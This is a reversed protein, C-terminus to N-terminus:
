RNPPSLRNEVLRVWFAAGIPLVTDNFDFQPHHLGPENNSRGSGIWLYCGPRHQLFYSFDEAGMTPALNRHVNECGVVDAAAQAAAEAEKGTNITAPYGRHYELHTQVGFAHGIGEMITKMQAEIQDRVEPNLCRTTGCLDVHNPIVNFTEGATMQTVSVVAPSQPELTRSTISQLATVLQAAAIVPDKTQHPMAAHGGRGTLRIEFRDACAMMPGEMIAFQGAPLAPWNHAGYVEDVEFQDFFGEEVMVRAGGAGEEAPQFVCHVTGAFNRHNALYRAAGLLMITHGDHGCAHMKGEHTSRHPIANEETMNLADMDARLLLSPGPEQGHITGVVGTHALGEHVDCGFVKLQEAVFAATRVEEFATEPHAHIDQRWATLEPAWESIQTPIKM